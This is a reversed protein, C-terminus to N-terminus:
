KQLCYGELKLQGLLKKAKISQNLLQQEFLSGRIEGGEIVTTISSTAVKLHKCNNKILEDTNNQKALLINESLLDILLGDQVQGLHSEKIFSSEYKNLTHVYLYVSAASATIIGVLVTIFYTLAVRKM